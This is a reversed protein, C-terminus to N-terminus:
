YTRAIRAYNQIFKRYCGTMGLFQEIEKETQPLPFKKIAEIKLKTTLIHGLPLEMPIQLDIYTKYSVYMFTDIIQLLIISEMVQHRQTNSKSGSGWIKARSM